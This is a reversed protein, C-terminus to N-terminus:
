PDWFKMGHECFDRNNFRDQFWDGWHDTGKPNGVLISYLLISYFTSNIQITTRSQVGNLVQNNRHTINKM